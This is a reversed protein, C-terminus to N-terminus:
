SRLLHAVLEAFGAGFAAQTVYRPEATMRGAYTRVNAV